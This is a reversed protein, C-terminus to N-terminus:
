IAFDDFVDIPDVIMKEAQIVCGFRGETFYLMPISVIPVIRALGDELKSLPAPTKDPFYLKTAYDGAKVKIKVYRQGDERTKLLPEYRARVEQETLQKEFITGSHATVHKVVQADLAELGKAHYDEISVALGRRTPDEGERVIDLRYKTTMPAQMSPCLNLFLAKGDAKIDIKKLGKPSLSPPLFELIPISDLTPRPM